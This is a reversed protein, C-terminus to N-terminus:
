TPKHYSRCRGSRRWAVLAHLLCALQVEQNCKREQLPVVPSCIGLKSQSLKSLCQLVELKRRFHGRPVRVELALKCLTLLLALAQAKFLSKARTHEGQGLIGFHHDDLM